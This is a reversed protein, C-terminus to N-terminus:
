LGLENYIATFSNIMKNVSFKKQWTQYGADRIPEWDRSPTTFVRELCSAFADPDRPSHLIGQLGDQIIEPIGGVRSAVVLKRLSIAEIISNPVGEGDSPLVVVPFDRLATYIDNTYGYFEIQELVGQRRAEAKINDTFPTGQINNDGTAEGGILRAEIRLGKKRLSALGKILVDHGKRSRLNAIMAICPPLPSELRDYPPDPPGISDRGNVIVCTKRPEIWSRNIIEDRLYQGNAVYYDVYKSTWKDLIHYM